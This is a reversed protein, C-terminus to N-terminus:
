QEQKFRLYADKSKQGTEVEYQFRMDEMKMASEIHKTNADALAKELATVADFHKQAERTMLEHHRQDEAAIQDNVRKTVAQEEDGAKQFEAVYKDQAAKKQNLLDQQGKADGKYLAMKQDISKLTDRLEEGALA